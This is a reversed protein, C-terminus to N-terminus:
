RSLRGAGCKAFSAKAKGEEASAKLHHLYMYVKSVGSEPGWPHFYMDLNEAFSFFVYELNKASGLFDMWGYPSGTGTRGEATGM